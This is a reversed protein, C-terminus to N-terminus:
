FDRSKVPPSSFRYHLMELDEYWSKGGRPQGLLNDLQTLLEHRERESKALAARLRDLDDDHMRATLTSGGEPPDQLHPWAFVAAGGLAAAALATRFAARSFVSKRRPQVPAPHDVLWREVTPAVAQELRRLRNATEDDRM